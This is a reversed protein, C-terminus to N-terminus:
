NLYKTIEHLNGTSIFNEGEAITEPQDKKYLVVLGFDLQEKPTQLDGKFSDGCMIINKPNIKYNLYKEAINLGKMFFDLHPKDEPDGISAKDYIIGKEKLAELRKTKFTESDKPNYHFYNNDQLTLRADSSTILFSPRNHSKIESFLDLVGPMPTSVQSLKLWYADILKTIEKSNLNISYDDLSIKLMTERSWKKIDGYQEIIPKQYSNIQNIIKDHYQQGGPIKDWDETNKITHGIMLTEFIQNFREQVNTATETDVITLLQNLIGESGSISNAATDILTDDVDFFFIAESWNIKDIM